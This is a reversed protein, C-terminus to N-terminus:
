ENSMEKKIQDILANKYAKVVIKFAQTLIEEREEDELDRGVLNYFVDNAKEMAEIYEGNDLKDEDAVFYSMIMSQEKIFFDYDFETRNPDGEPYLETPDKIYDNNM